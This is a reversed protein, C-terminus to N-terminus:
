LCMPPNACRSTLAFTFLFRLCVRCVPDGEGEGEPRDHTSGSRLGGNRTRSRAGSRLGRIFVAVDARAARRARGEYVARGHPLTTTLRPNGERSSM